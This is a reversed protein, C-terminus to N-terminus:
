SHKFSGDGPKRILRAKEQGHDVSQNINIAQIYESQFLSNNFRSMTTRDNIERKEKYLSKMEVRTDSQERFPTKKFGYEGLFLDQKIKSLLKNANERQQLLKEKM